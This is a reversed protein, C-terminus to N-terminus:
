DLFQAKLPEWRQSRGSIVTCGLPVPEAGPALTQATRGPQQVEAYYRRLYLKIRRSPHTNRVLVMKGQRMVCQGDFDHSFEIYSLADTSEAGVMAWPLALAIVALRWDVRM